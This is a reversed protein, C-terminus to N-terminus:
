RNGYIMSRNWTQGHEIFTLSISVNGNITKQRLLELLNDRSGYGNTIDVPDGFYITELIYEM